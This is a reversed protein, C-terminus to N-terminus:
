WSQRRRQGHADVSLARDQDQGSRYLRCGGGFEQATRFLEMEERKDQAEDIKPQLEKPAFIKYYAPMEETIYFIYPRKGTEKDVESDFRNARVAHDAAWVELFVPKGAPAQGSVKITGGNNVENKDIAITPAAIVAEPQAAATVEEGIAVNGGCLVLLATIAMTRTKNKQKM